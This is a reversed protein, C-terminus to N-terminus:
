EKFFLLSPLIYKLSWLTCWGSGCVNSRHFQTILKNKVRCEISKFSSHFYTLKPRSRDTYSSALSSQFSSFINMNTIFDNRSLTKRNEVIMILLPKCSQGNRNAKGRGDNYETYLIHFKAFPNLGKKLYWFLSRFLLLLVQLIWHVNYYGRKEVLTLGESM